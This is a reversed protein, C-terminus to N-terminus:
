WARRAQYTLKPEENLFNWKYYSCISIKPGCLITSAGTRENVWFEGRSELEDLMRRQERTCGVSKEARQNVWCEGRRESEGLM